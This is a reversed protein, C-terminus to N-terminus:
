MASKQIFKILKGETPDIIYNFAESNAFYFGDYGAQEEKSIGLWALSLESNILHQNYIPFMMSDLVDSINWLHKGSWDYADVNNLTVCYEHPIVNPKTRQEEPIYKTQTKIIILNEAIIISCIRDAKSVIFDFFKIEIFQKLSISFILCKGGIYVQIDIDSM